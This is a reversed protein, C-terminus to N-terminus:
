RERLKWHICGRVFHQEACEDGVPRVAWECTECLMTAKAVELVQDRTLRAPWEVPCFLIPSPMERDVPKTM